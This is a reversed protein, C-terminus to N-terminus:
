RSRRDFISRDAPTPLLLCADGFEHWLYGAQLAADYAEQVLRPGAVAELLSLHTAQPAHWGTVLGDVVRARREQDLVFGTRGRGAVVSGDPMAVTELARTVTTGVAVVRGGSRRTENVLRATTTSVEYREEQPPEGLEMSSVGTHLLVPAIVVGRVALETILRHTFPRAASPMEASGRHRGFITQYDSLPWRARLYNYSIPRGHLVLYDEVASDLGPRARWLRSRSETAYPYATSVDLVVGGPLYVREGPTVDGLPGDPGRLEVVWSGDRLPSSFHLIVPTGDPRIGDVAAPLTSSTNVVVLDGASLYQPLSRFPTHELKGPRAVLMRVEDRALGRAEAPETADLERPVSFSTRAAAVATSM